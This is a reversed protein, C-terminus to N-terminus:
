AAAAILEALAERFGRILASQEDPSVLPENFEFRGGLGAEDEILRLFAPAAPVPGLKTKTEAPEALYPPAAFAVGAPLAEPPVHPTYNITAGTQERWDHWGTPGPQAPARIAMASESEAAVRAILDALDGSVRVDMIDTVTMMGVLGSLHYSTRQDGVIRLAFRDQGSWRSLALAYASAILVFSTTKLAAAATAVQRSVGAPLDLPRYIKDGAVWTLSRGSPGHLLAIAAIRDRLYQTVMAGAESELWCAEGQAYDAYRVQPPAPDQGALRACLERAIVALSGGDCIFHHFLLVVAVVGEGRDLVAARALQDGTLPLPPDVVRSVAADFAGQDACSELAVEFAEPPHLRVSMGDRDMHTRLADHNAFLGRVAAQAAAASVGRFSLVLPLKEMGPAHPESMLRVWVRQILSTPIAGEPARPQLRGAAMARVRLYHLIEPKHTQLLSRDAADLAGKARYRLAEGDREVAVGRAELGALLSPADYM